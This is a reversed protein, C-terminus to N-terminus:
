KCATAREGNNQAVMCRLYASVLPPWGEPLAALPGSSPVPRGSAALNRAVLGANSSLSLLGAAQRGPTPSGHPAPHHLAPIPCQTNAIAPLFPGPASLLSAGSPVVNASVSPLGSLGM